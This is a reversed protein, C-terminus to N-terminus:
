YLKVNDASALWNRAESDLTLIMGDVNAVM